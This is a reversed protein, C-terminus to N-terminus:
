FRFVLPMKRGFGFAKSSVRLVPAFQFRKYENMNVLRVVKRVVEPSYGAAAIAQEDDQREIYRFLIDDLVDYDPLSDTDKQDPRLEASPAKTLVNVPIIEKDKNILKALEYVQTKYVDGLISMSGNMDGYLTGYGVAAESKNTTNLLLNGFKNSVGMLLTGRIRAQINEEAVNLPLDGFIPALMSEFAKFGEEITVIDYKVGMRKAQEVADNVSHDSSYRSPMMLVRVNEAGIAEAALALVLASDIGGSLGLVATKFNMKAFYDRIGLVLAQRIREISSTKEFHDPKLNNTNIVRYDEEFSKLAECLEGDSSLVMSSGDFILDTNAGVQNVYVVPLGYRRVNGLFVSLREEVKDHSFPSAAINIVIDPNLKSLNEMPSTRYLQNKGFRNSIPQDDWLDECITIALRKGKYEVINFECNPEFYRYEDFIDYTPLLTKHAIHKIEGDAIFYASNFLMKGKEYPNVSPAGVIVAIGFSNAVIQMIAIECREVFERRELLDHPPYGCVALESFVVLDAGDAKAKAINELIKTTNAEFNNVHYNLQALAIKMEKDNLM